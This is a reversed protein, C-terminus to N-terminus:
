LNATSWTMTPKATPVLAGPLEWNISGQYRSDYDTKSAVQGVGTVQGFLYLGQANDSATWLDIFERQLQRRESGSWMQVIGDAFGPSSCALLLLWACALIQLQGRHKARSSKATPLAM